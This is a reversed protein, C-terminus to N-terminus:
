LGYDRKDDYCNSDDIIVRQTEANCNLLLKDKLSVRARMKDMCAEETFNGMFDDYWELTGKEEVMRRYVQDEVMKGYFVMDDQFKGETPELGLDKEACAINFGAQPLSKYRESGVRSFIAIQNDTPDDYGARRMWTKCLKHIM